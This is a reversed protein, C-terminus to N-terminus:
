TTVQVGANYRLNDLLHESMQMGPSQWSILFTLAFLTRTGGDDDDADDGSHKNQLLSRCFIILVLQLSAM